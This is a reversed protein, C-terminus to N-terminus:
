PRGYYPAGKEGVDIKLVQATEPGIQQTAYIYLGEDWVIDYIKPGILGPYLVANAGSVPDYTFIADPSADTAIYM